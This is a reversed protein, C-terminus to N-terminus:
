NGKRKCCCCCCSCCKEKKMDRYRKWYKEEKIDKYNIYTALDVLGHLPCDWIHKEVLLKYESKCICNEDPYQYKGVKWSEFDKLTLYVDSSMLSHRPCFWHKNHYVEKFNRDCTCRPIEFIKTEIEKSGFFWEKIYKFM